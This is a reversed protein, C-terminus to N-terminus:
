GIDKHRNCPGLIVKRGDPQLIHCLSVEGRYAVVEIVMLLQQGSRSVIMTEKVVENLPRLLHAFPRRRSKRTRVHTNRRQQHDHRPSAAALEKREQQREVDQQAASRDVNLRVVQDIGHCPEDSGEHEVYQHRLHIFPPKGHRHELLCGSVTRIM